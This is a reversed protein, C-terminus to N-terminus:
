NSNHLEEFIKNRLTAPIGQTQDYGKPKLSEIHFGGGKQFSLKILRDAQDTMVKNYEKEYAKKTLLNVKYRYGEDMILIPSLNSAYYQSFDEPKYKKLVSNQVRKDDVWVGYKKSDSSYRMLQTATVKNKPMPKITGIFKVYQMSQQKASMQRFLKHMQATDASSIDALKGKGYGDLIKLDYKKLFNNYANMVEAPADKEAHNENRRTYKVDQLRRLADEEDRPDPPTSVSGYKAYEIDAATPVRRGNLDVSWIADVKEKRVSDAFREDSMLYIRQLGNKTNQFAGKLNIPVVPIHKRLERNPIRKGDLWIEAKNENFWANVQQPTIPPYKVQVDFGFWQRRKEARTMKSYLDMLKSKDEPTFKLSPNTRYKELIDNYEETITKYLNNNVIKDSVKLIGATSKQSFLFIAAALLPIIALRKYMGIRVSTQKTMMILRKKIILYNFQSTLYLSGSQSAKALLLYQYAPTDHYSEIVAEDALFEHNLQIAKRYFPIFPNFWFVVQLLEVFIVDLSHLQRVHAQEHCIIEPEVGGSQYAQKNIFVYNLFSHPTVEEDILVLKTDQYNVITNKTVLHSIHWSNKAFRLLLILVATGYLGLLLYPLYDAEPTQVIPQQVSNNTTVTPTNQQAIPEDIVVPATQEMPAVATSPAQETVFKDLYPIQVAPVSITVFPVALSFVLSFLLYFRNFRYLRENGLFVRYVLLLLGSCLIFKIIYTIM